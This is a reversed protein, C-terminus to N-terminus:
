PDQRRLAFQLLRMFRMSVRGINPLEEMISKLQLRMQPIRRTQKGRYSLRFFSMGNLPAGATHAAPRGTQRLTWLKTNIAMLPRLLRMFADFCKHKLHKDLELTTGVIAIVCPATTGLTVMMVIADMSMTQMGLKGNNPDTGYLITDVGSFISARWIGNAYLPM